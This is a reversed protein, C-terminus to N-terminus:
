GKGGRAALAKRQWADAEDCLAQWAIPDALFALSKQRLLLSVYTAADAYQPRLALARDLYAIGQEALEVRGADTVDGAGFAPPAPAPASTADSDAPPRPWPDFAIKDPGGGRASLVQWIFTGVGYQAEPDAPRLGAARKSWDLADRWRGQKFYVEQLGRVADLDDPARRTRALFAAELAAFDDTDFWTQITLQEGRPDGPALARLRAFAALACDAARRSQPDKGGPAILQRCTYGKNLWLTPLDPVLAEAAQYAAVAEAYQGRKYLENADQIQKRGRVQNCGGALIAAAALAALLGRRRRDRPRLEAQRAYDKAPPNPFGGLTGTEVVDASTTSRCSM